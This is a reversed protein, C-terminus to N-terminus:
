AYGRPQTPKQRAHHGTEFDTRRTPVPVGWAACESSYVRYGRRSWRNLRVRSSAANRMLATLISTSEM